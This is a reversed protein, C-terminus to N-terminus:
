AHRASTQIDTKALAANIKEIFHGDDPQRASKFGSELLKRQICTGEQM